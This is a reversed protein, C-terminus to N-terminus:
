VLPGKDSKVLEDMPKHVINVVKVGMKKGVRRLDQEFYHAISGVFHVPVEAYNEYCFVHTGIFSEFVEDIISQIAPEERNKLVFPAFSALYRNPNPESLVNHLIIDKTLGYENTLTEAIDSPLKKYLLRTLLLKGMHYGSGEDGMIFGLSPIKELCKEGDFYTSNSGTGLICAIGPEGSYTAKAAAMFDHEVVIDANQFFQALVARVKECRAESSCGAGYFDIHHIQQFYDELGDEEEIVGAIDLKSHLFPNIGSTHFIVPTDNERVIAWDTKTSGSEVILKM